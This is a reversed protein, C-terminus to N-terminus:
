PHVSDPFQTLEKMFETRKQARKKAAELELKQKYSSTIKRFSRDLYRDKSSLIAGGEISHDVVVNLNIHTNKDYKLVKAIEKTDPKPQDAQAVTITVDVTKDRAKILTDYNQIIKNLEKATRTKAMYDLFRGLTPNLNLSTTLKSFLTSKQQPTKAANLIFSLLKPHAALEKRLTVLSSAVKDVEAKGGKEAEVYLRSALVGPKNYFRVPLNVRAKAFHANAVRTGISLGNFTQPATSSPNGSKAEAKPAGGAAQKPPAEAKPAGGAAQKPPSSPTPTPTKPTPAITSMCRYAGAARISRGVMATTYM